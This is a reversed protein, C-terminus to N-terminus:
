WQGCLSAMGKSKGEFRCRKEFRRAMATSIVSADARTQVLVFRAPLAAYRSCSQIECTAPDMRAKICIRPSREPAHNTTEEFITISRDGAPYQAPQVEYSWRRESLQSCQPNGPTTMWERAHFQQYAPYWSGVLTREGSDAQFGQVPYSGDRHRGREVKLRLIAGNITIMYWGDPNDIGTPAGTAVDVSRPPTIAAHDANADRWKAAAYDDILAVSGNDHFEFSLRERPYEAGRQRVQFNLIQRSIERDAPFGPCIAQIEPQVTQKIFTAYNPALLHARGAPSDYDAVVAVYIHECWDKGHRAFTSRVTLGPAEFLLYDNVEAAAPWALGGLSLLAAALRWPAPTKM